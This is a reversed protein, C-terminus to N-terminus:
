DTSVKFRSNGIEITDGDRLLSQKTLEGNVRVSGFKLESSLQWRRGTWAVKVCGWVLGRIKLQGARGLTLPETENLDFSEGGDKWGDLREVHSRKATKLQRLSARVQDLDM